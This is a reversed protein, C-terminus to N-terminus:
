FSREPYTSFQLSGDTTTWGGGRHRMCSTRGISVVSVEVNWRCTTRDSSCSGGEVEDVGAMLFSTQQEEKNFSERSAMKSATSYRPLQLWNIQGNQRSVHMSFRVSGANWILGVDRYSKISKLEWAAHTQHSQTSRASGARGPFM